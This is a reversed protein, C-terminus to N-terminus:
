RAVFPLDSSFVLSVFLFRFNCFKNPVNNFVQKITSNSNTQRLQNRLHPLYKINRRQKGFYQFEIIGPYTPNRKTKSFNM